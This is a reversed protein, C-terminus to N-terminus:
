STEVILFPNSSGTRRLIFSEEMVNPRSTPQRSKVAM